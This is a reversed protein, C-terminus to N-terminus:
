RTPYMSDPLESDERKGSEMDEWTVVANGDPGNDTVKADLLRALEDQELSQFSLGLRAKIDNANQDTSFVYGTGFPRVRQFPNASEDSGLAVEVLQRVYETGTRKELRGNIARLPLSIGEPM